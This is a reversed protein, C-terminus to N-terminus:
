EILLAVQDPLQQWISLYIQVNTIHGSAALHRSQLQSKSGASLLASATNFFFSFFLFLDGVWRSGGTGPLEGDPHPLLFFGQFNNM